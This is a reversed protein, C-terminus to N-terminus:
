SSLASWRESQRRWLSTEAAPDGAQDIHRIPVPTFRPLPNHLSKLPARGAEALRENPRVMRDCDVARTSRSPSPDAWYCNTFSRDDCAKPSRPEHSEGTSPSPNSSGTRSVSALSM